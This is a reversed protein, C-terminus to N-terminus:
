PLPAEVKFDLRRMNCKLILADLADLPMGHHILIFCGGGGAGCMKLGVPHGQARLASALDRIKDTTINPFLKEREEGELGILELMKKWDKKLIAQRTDTSIKAIAALGEVVEIRKDFFGKYVEWNNIGSARSQGSYVLAVNEELAKKLEPSYLQEILIDGEIGKLALVGGVLAPFYDQYGAVGQNLIRSEVGKVRRVAEKVDFSRDTFKCLAKYLTVGMASSGGLGSGAPAGSQLDVKLNSTLGFLKLIQLVFTMEEFRRSYLVQEDSLEAQEYKYSKNYDSSVIEVGNFNTKELIVQAKLGTAVNLTWVDKLILNIPEIDLTGGVLDVRVSGAETVRM